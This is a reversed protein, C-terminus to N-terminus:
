PILKPNVDTGPKCSLGFCWFGHVGEFGDFGVTIMSGPTSWNLVSRKTAEAM